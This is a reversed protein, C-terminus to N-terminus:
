SNWGHADLYNQLITMAALEDSHEARQKRKMGRDKLNREVQASTLREDWFIFPILLLAELAEAFARVKQAMPGEKGSLELPLGIIIKDIPLYNSLKTRIAEATEPFTRGARVMGIPLAIKQREDSIALGIRVQGFDIGLLRGM